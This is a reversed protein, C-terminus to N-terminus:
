VCMCVCADVRQTVQAKMNRDQLFMEILTVLNEACMQHLSQLCLLATPGRLGCDVVNILMHSVQFLLLLLLLLLNLAVVNRVDGLFISWSLIIVVVVSVVVADREM